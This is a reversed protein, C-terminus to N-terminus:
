RLVTNGDTAESTGLPLLRQSTGPSDIDDQHNALDVREDGIQFRPMPTDVAIEALHQLLVQKVIWISRPHQHVEMHKSNVEDFSSAYPLEANALEVIGDGDGWLKQQVSATWGEPELHGVVVHYQTWPAPRAKQLASFFPSDPALSDISTEITLLEKDRFFGPNEGILSENKQVLLQPLTLLKRGLWRTTPNAFDSGKYPTALTVVRKVHHNPKFFLTKRLNEIAIPDGKLEEFSRDSALEWFHEESDVTQLLSILGGMSHGVLVMQDLGLAQQGPDLDQRATQLDERMQQASVWFPQGTPYMYFWFQYRSALTPNARLDNFMETWTIASSWFGHVMVVPIKSPDYPELMYLGRVQKGLDANLLSATALLNSRYLPDNLYYALPATIDSAIPNTKGAVVVQKQRLPDILQISGSAVSKDSNPDDQRHSLQIFATLPLTLGPPYYKENGTNEEQKKRIAILPVGVGYQVHRNTLGHIDFDSVFEFREINENNWRGVTDCSLQLDVWRSDLRAQHSKRFNGESRLHRLLGEVSKNYTETVEAFYPDYANRSREFRDAWLFDASSVLALLQWDLAKESQQYRQHYDAQQQALTAVCAVCDANKEVQAYKWLKTIAEERQEEFQSDLSYRRLIQLQRQSPAPLPQYLSDKLRVLPSPKVQRLEVTEASGISAIRALRHISAPDDMSVCGGCFGIMLAVGFRMLRRHVLLLDLQLVPDKSM